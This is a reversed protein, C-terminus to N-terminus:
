CVQPLAGLSMIPRFFQSDSPAVQQPEKSAAGLGGGYEQPAGALGGKPPEAGWVGQLPNPPAATGRGPTRPPAFGGHMLRPIQPAAAGWLAEESRWM